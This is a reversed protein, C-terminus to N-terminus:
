EPAVRVIRLRQHDAAVGADPEVRPAARIGVHDCKGADAIHGAPGLHRSAGESAPPPPPPADRGSGWRWNIWIAAIIALAILGTALRLWSRKIWIDRM